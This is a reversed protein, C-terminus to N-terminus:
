QGEPSSVIIDLLDFASLCLNKFPSLAVVAWLFHEIIGFCIKGAACSIERGAM